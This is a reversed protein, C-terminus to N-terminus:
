YVLNAIGVSFLLGGFLQRRCNIVREGYFNRFTGDLMYCTVLTTSRHFNEDFMRYKSSINMREIEEKSLKCVNVVKALCRTREGTLPQLYEFNYVCGIRANSLSDYLGGYAHVLFFAVACLLFWCFILFMTTYFIDSM